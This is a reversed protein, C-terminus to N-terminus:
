AYRIWKMIEPLTPKKGYMLIGVRYIRACLWVLGFITAIMLAISLAIQWFPAAQLAVRLFMVLPATLPFLSGAMALPGGPAEFTNIMLVVAAILPTMVVFQLQQSEQESNVMAGVAACITSYLAFGLIFFIAFYILLSVSLVGKVESLAAVAASGLPGLVLLAWIGIQTLGVAAVGIIKGAMMESARATSLMVEMIRSTKEELVARMVNIGYLLVTMYLIMVMSVITIFLGESGGVGSPSEPDLSVAALARDIEENSMGSSKLLKRRLGENMGRELEANTIMSSVNRTLFTVKRAKLADETAFIVGDLQKQKVKETLAARESESTNTDLDLTMQGMQPLNRKRGKVPDDAQTNRKQTLEELQQRISEGTQPDSAVIVFHKAAGGGRTAIMTPGATIGFMLAPILLTMIIFSKSRVRELYERRAILFINRM